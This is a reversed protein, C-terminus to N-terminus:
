VEKVIVTEAEHESVFIKYPVEAETEMYESTKLQYLLHAPKIKEIIVRVEDLNSILGNLQIRITNKEVNEEVTVPVGSIEELIKKFRFPNMPQKRKKLLIQQRRQEQTMEVSFPIGYEKEWLPLAWTATQPFIQQYFDETRERVEDIQEGMVEFLWLGVYSAGYIPSVYDIMRQASQSQLIREMKDTKYWM